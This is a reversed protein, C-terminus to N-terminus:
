FIPSALPTTGSENVKQKSISALRLGIKFPDCNNMSVIGCRAYQWCQALSNLTMFKTPCHGVHLSHDLSITEPVSSWNSSISNSDHHGIIFNVHPAATTGLIVM